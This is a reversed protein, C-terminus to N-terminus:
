RSQRSSARQKLEGVLHEVFARAAAKAARGAPFVAHIEVTDMRWNDLVEVLAGSALEARCGMLGASAIGLGAVAAATAGENSSATIRGEVRISVERGDREFSWGQASAGPPGVIIRHDTLDAPNAPAGARRLYDPSAVLLRENLCLLRATAGSDALPGFRVAVDVGERLLDQRQDEMLLNIRLAPHKDLFAPLHPIVERTAFSGPLAVRLVGRLEDGGRASQSAEDLAVLLPEIRALYDTGAETLVVARTSRTLLAAGIDKELAAIARSASPQSLGLERGAKSISGTRAVRVFLKLIALSDTM